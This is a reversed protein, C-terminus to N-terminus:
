LAAGAVHEIQSSDNHRAVEQHEDKRHRQGTTYIPLAFRDHASLWFPLLAHRLPQGDANNWARPPPCGLYLIDRPGGLFCTELRNKTGFDVIVRHRCRLQHAERSSM